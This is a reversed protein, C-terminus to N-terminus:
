MPRMRPVARGARRPEAFTAGGSRGPPGGERCSDTDVSSTRSGARPLQLYPGRIDACAPEADLPGLAVGPVENRPRAGPRIWGSAPNTWFGFAGVGHRALTLARSVRLCRGWEWVAPM